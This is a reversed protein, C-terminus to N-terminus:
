VCPEPSFEHHGRGNRCARAVQAAVLRFETAVPELRLTWREARVADDTLGDLVVRVTEADGEREDSDARISKTTAVRAGLDLFRAAVLVASREWEEDVASQYDTFSRVPVAGDAKAAPPGNWATEEGSGCGAAALAALALAVGLTLRV